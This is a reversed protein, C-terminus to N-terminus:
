STELLVANNELEIDITGTWVNAQEGVEENFSVFTQRQFNTLNHMRAHVIRRIELM